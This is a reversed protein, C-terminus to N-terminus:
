VNKKGNIEFSFLTLFFGHVMFMIGIIGVITIAAIVPRYFILISILLSFIGAILGVTWFKYRKRKFFLSQVIWFIGTLIGYFAFVFPLTIATLSINLLLILALIIDLFGEGM